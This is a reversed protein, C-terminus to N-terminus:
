VVSKRDIAKLEEVIEMLNGVDLHIGKSEMTRAADITMTLRIEELQRKATIFDAETQFVNRM